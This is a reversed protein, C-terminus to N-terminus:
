RQGGLNSSVSIPVTDLSHLPQEVVTLEAAASVRTEVRVHTLRSEIMGRAVISKRDIEVRKIFIHPTRVFRGVVRIELATEPDLWLEGRILGKQNRRPSLRFVYAKWEGDDVFGKYSFRYNSSTIRTSAALKDSAQEQASLYRVIVERQVTRDGSVQLVQYTHASSRVGRLWGTKELKPLAAHIEFSEAGSVPSGADGLYQELAAQAGAPVSKAVGAQAPAAFIAAAVVLMLSAVAKWAALSPWNAFKPDVFGPYQRGCVRGDYYIHAPWMVSEHMLRCWHVGISSRLNKLM